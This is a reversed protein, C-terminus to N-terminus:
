ALGRFSSLVRREIERYELEFRTPIMRELDERAASLKQYVVDQVESSPMDSLFIKLSELNKDGALRAILQQEKKDLFGDEVVHNAIVWLLLNDKAEKIIKRIPGDIFKDVDKRIRQDLLLLEENRFIDEGYRFDRNLSFWLLARCRIFISPHTSMSYADTELTADLQRLFAGVDFRLHEGTLGSVTKMMARIAVDLSQCSILGIRDSSIEQARQQIKSELSDTSAGAKSMGHGLLFHGIEHGAVFMFEYEDLLDVLTSSFRLICEQTNGAFCEGQIESSAYVFAHVSNNPLHLRCCVEALCEALAPTVAPSILLDRQSVSQFVHRSNPFSIKDSCHLSDDSYRIREALARAASTANDM